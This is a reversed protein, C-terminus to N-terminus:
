LPRETARALRKSDKWKSARRKAARTSEMKWCGEKEEGEEFPGFFPINWNTLLTTSSHLFFTSLLSLVASTNADPHWTPKAPLRALM